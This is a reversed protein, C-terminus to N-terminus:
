TFDKKNYIFISILLLICVYAIGYGLSLIIHYTNQPIKQVVESKIDFNSLNPIIYYLYKLIVRTMTDSVSGSLMKIDNSLHGLIYICFTFIGSLIPTTFTSFMLVFATIIMMEIFIMFAALIILLDLTKEYLFVLLLLGLTMTLIIIFLSCVLGIYKSLIFQWRTVPKSLINFITKKDVEKYLLNMGLFITTLVGFISIVALGMDKVIKIQAGMSLDALLVSGFIMVLAFILLVYYVKNRVNEKITNKALAAIKM